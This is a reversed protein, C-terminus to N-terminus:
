DLKIVGGKKKVNVVLTFSQEDNPIVQQVWVNTFEPRDNIAEVAKRIATGMVQEDKMVVTIYLQANWRRFLGFM